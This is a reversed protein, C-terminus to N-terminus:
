GWHYYLDLLELLWLLLISVKMFHTYLGVQTQPKFKAATIGVVTWSVLQM